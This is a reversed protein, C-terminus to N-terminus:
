AISVDMSIQTFAKESFSALRVDQRSCKLVRNVLVREQERDREREFLQLSLLPHSPFTKLPRLRGSVRM